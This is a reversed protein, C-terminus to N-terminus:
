PWSHVTSAANLFPSAPEHSGRSSSPLLAHLEYPSSRFFATLSNLATQYCSWSRSWYCQRHNGCSNLLVTIWVSSGLSSAWPYTSQSLLGYVWLGSSNGIFFWAFIRREKEIRSCASWYRPISGNSSWYRWPPVWVCNNQRSGLFSRFVALHFLWFPWDTRSSSDIRWIWRTRCCFDGWGTSTLCRRKAVLFLSLFRLLM